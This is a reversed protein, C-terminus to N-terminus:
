HAPARAADRVRQKVIKLQEVLSDPEEKGPEDWPKGLGLDKAIVRYCNYSETAGANSGVHWAGGTAYLHKIPTRHNALEPTPRNEETQFPSRDIGAMTGNPGLNRMRRHDYASNTDVGIVNDWTMNPAYATWITILEDAYRKKIELWEKECFASAPPALQESQVVHKGPPAFGPDVLSHCGVTPAYDDLPPFKHLRQYMCERAIHMPDPDPQLGLWQCEHIDPNFAEAKYQPAEHVAFSYWMLCGFTDRLLQVRRKLVADVHAEGILDFILQHPSLTSVVLRRAAIESGDALRIGTATANEIIATEVPVNTFFQCGNRVLIQHAAHAIQHTGGRNFGITPLTAGLGVTMMGTGAENIDIVSSVAFRLICSQLEHSEFWEQAARLGSAKMTLSDPTFGSEMLKPLLMAQREMVEGSVRDEAPKFLTDILVRFYEDTEALSWLKLWTDADKNSFRAIENATREQTPDHKLSYIALCNDKDRFVFGDSCTHQDWQAGYEWFEPFDRWVPAYYWPLIINAHTNGRFGAASIEETALCGGIEHRREFIGVSLGGYKILYMALLLAKNGGGVIVADFTKDAM